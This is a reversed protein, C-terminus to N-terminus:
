SSKLTSLLNLKCKRACKKIDTFGNYYSANKQAIQRNSLCRLTQDPNSKDPIFYQSSCKYAFETEPHRLAVSADNIKLGGPVFENYDAAWSATILDNM